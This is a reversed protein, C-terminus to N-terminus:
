RKIGPILAGYMYSGHPRKTEDTLNSYLMWIHVSNSTRTMSLQRCNKAASNNVIIAQIGAAFLLADLRPRLLAAPGVGVCEVM